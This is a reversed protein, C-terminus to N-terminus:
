LCWAPSCPSCPSILAVSGRLRVSVSGRSLGVSSRVGGVRGRGVGGVGSKVEGGDDDGQEGQESEEEEEGGVDGEGGDPPLSLGNLVGSLGVHHLPHHVHVLGNDFGLFAQLSNGTINSTKSVISSEVGGHGLQGGHHDGVLVALVHLLEGGGLITV